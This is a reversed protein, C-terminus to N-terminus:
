RWGNTQGYPTSAYAGGWASPPAERQYSTGYSTAGGYHTAGGGYGNMDPSRPGGHFQDMEEMRDVDVGDTRRGQVDQLLTGLKQRLANIGEQVVQDPEHGGVTEVDLYFRKPEDEILGTNGGNMEQQQQVYPEEDPANKSVPWELKPDEEYWYDLHKLANLPDYEFGVAATPAWKAHEKAIGKKAICRMRLEQGKRLKCIIAGKGEPDTIVPSGVEDPGREEAHLDRAYVTLTENHDCRANLRLTSSCNGCFSECVDCDRNYALQALGKCSLPILGLRHALLEDPLVSTNSEIEVLDIAMTPVESLM